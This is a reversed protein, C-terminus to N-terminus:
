LGLMSELTEMEGSGEGYVDQFTASNRRISSLLSDIKYDREAKTDDVQPTITKYFERDRDSLKGGELSTAISQTIRSFESNIKRAETGPIRKAIGGAVPGSAGEYSSILDELALLDSEATKLEYLRNKASVTLDKSKDEEEDLGLLSVVASAEASSINGQLMEITLLQKIANAEEMGWGSSTMGQAQEQQPEFYKGRLQNIYDDGEFESVQQQEPQQLAGGGTLGGLVGQLGPIIQQLAEIGAPIAGGRPEVSPMSGQSSLLNSFWDSVKGAGTGSVKGTLPGAGPV